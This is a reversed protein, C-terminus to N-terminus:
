SPMCNATARKPAGATDSFAESTSHASRANRRYRLRPQQERMKTLTEPSHSFGYLVVLMDSVSCVLAGLAAGLSGTGAGAWGAGWGAASVDAGAGAGAGETGTMAKPVVRPAPNARPLRGVGLAAGEATFDPSYLGV